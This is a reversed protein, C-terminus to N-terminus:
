KHQESQAVKSNYRQFSFEYNWVFKANLDTSMSSNITFKTNGHFEVMKADFVLNNVLIRDSPDLRRLTYFDIIKPTKWILKDKM